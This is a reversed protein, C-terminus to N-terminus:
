MIFDYTDYKRSDRSRIGTCCIPGMYSHRPDFTAYVACGSVNQSDSSISALATTPSYRHNSSQTVLIVQLDAKSIKSSANPVTRKGAIQFGNCLHLQAALVVIVKLIKSM